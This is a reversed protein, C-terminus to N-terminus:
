RGPMDPMCEIPNRPIQHTGTAGDYQFIGIVKTKTWVYIANCGPAGYGDPAGYSDDFEYDLFPVAKEWTLVKGQPQKNYCKVGESGYDGWGMEGIVVAEIEEEAAAELIWQKLNAM